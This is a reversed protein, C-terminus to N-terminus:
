RQLVLLDPNAIEERYTVEPWRRLDRVEFLGTKKDLLLVRSGLPCRVVAKHLDPQYANPPSCSVDCGKERLRDAVAAFCTKSDM